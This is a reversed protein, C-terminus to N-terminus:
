DRPSPSTYLLCTCTDHWRKRRTDDSGNSLQTQSQNKKGWEHDALPSSAVPVDVDSVNNDAVCRLWCAPIDQGALWCLLSSFLTHILHVWMVSAHVVNCPQCRSSLCRTQLSSVFEALSCGWNNLMSWHLLSMKCRRVSSPFTLDLHWQLGNWERAHMWDKACKDDLVWTIGEFPDTQWGFMLQPSLKKSSSLIGLRTFYCCQWLFLLFFDDHSGVLGSVCPLSCTATFLQSLNLQATKEGFFIDNHLVICHHLLNLFSWTGLVKAHKWHITLACELWNQM